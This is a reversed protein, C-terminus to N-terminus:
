NLSGGHPASPTGCPITTTIRRAIACCSQTGRASGGLSPVPLRGLTTGSRITACPLTAIREKAEALDALDGHEASLARTARIAEVEAQARAAVKRLAMTEVGISGQRRAIFGKVEDPIRTSGLARIEEETLDYPNPQDKRTLNM